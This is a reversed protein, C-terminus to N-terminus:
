PGLERALREAHGTAGMEVFLRHATRLERDRTSADGMLRALNSREEHISPKFAAAGTQDVLAAAQELLTEVETTAGSVEPQMLASALVLQAKIEWLTVGLERALSLAQEATSRAQKPERGALYARAREALIYPEWASMTQFERAAAAAGDLHSLAESSRGDLVSGVGLMIHGLVVLTGVGTKGAADIGERGHALVARNEGILYMMEAYIEHAIALLALERRPRAWEIVMELDRAAEGPRGTYAQLFGRVCLHLLYPNSFGLLGGTPGHDDSCLELAEGNCLLAEQLAGSLGHTWALGYRVEAQLRRDSGQDALRLAESYLKCCESMSGGRQLRLGGYSNLIQSLAELDGCRTALDCGENFLTMAEEESGGLRSILILIQARAASREPLSATSEPVTDLLERARRWHRLSEAAHNFGAWRAARAHWRAAESANEAGEWHYALLAAREDLKAPDLTELARAVAGHVGARRESLQSEYAVEQTLPHKFAYELEPYLADEYIFEGAILNRLAEALDRAPLEAVESLVPESFKKGIVSATQLVQKEREPLRDIRAALVAQVTNPVTLQAIPRTLRYAGKSGELTGAEALSQVVEEIFFPNGGTREQILDCLGHISPDSGLLDRLLEAIAEPGLPVLPLQQYYSKQAWPARYEPRFNVLVLTRTGPLSEVLNELFGESAGDFWHLDEMVFVAPERESRAHALRKVIAFLERQRAEPDMQPAPRQPDPVGLFDFWLPLADALSQDLRILRGAIKDRAAEDSDQETIGLYSRFLELIPLFPVTKGHAVAHTEHLALGRARCREAFEFCLRSKGVGAEGVVGVVQANGEVARESAAELTAMEDTRGVFRSFGRARSVDLRTRLRGVGQLAYVGVSERAGPVDFRGLDELEFYGSVLAATHDTLYIKGPEALQEMRAALGVTHGQATYDMRLDDGIKGVIVEGSNLGMRVSFSLGQRLRLENAYQRLDQTLRLAAYCARQAHDEHAIPAGFLAMIGDGTYQNVTGEFRHVGDTLIAFFRNLIRHWEEADVQEALDMSGKVDAFLITVQKREGELAPKSQLIKDALHKPTYSRPDADKPGSGPSPAAAVGEGCEDCFKAGPRLETGCSSCARRLPTGCEECFKAQERNKRGCVPCSM